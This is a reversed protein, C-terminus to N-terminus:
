HRAELVALRDLAQQAPTVLVCASQKDARGVRGRLQHLQLLGFREGHEVVMLTADPVDIGVEIVVTSILLRCTGARFTSLVLHKQASSMQGTILLAHESLLPEESDRMKEYTQVPPATQMRAPMM